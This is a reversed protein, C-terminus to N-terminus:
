RSGATGGSAPKPQEWRIRRILIKGDVEAFPMKQEVAARYAADHSEVEQLIRETSSRRGPGFIAQYLEARQRGKETLQEIAARKAALAVLDLQAMTKAINLQETMDPRHGERSADTFIKEIAAIRAKVGAEEVALMRQQTTLSALTETRIDSWPDLQKLQKRAEIRKDEVGKAEARLDAVKSQYYKHLEVFTEHIPLSYVRDYSALTGRVLEKVVEANPAMLTIQRGEGETVWTRKPDDLARRSPSEPPWYSQVRVHLSSDATLMKLVAPPLLGKPAKRALVALDLSNVRLWGGVDKPHLLGATSFRSMVQPARFRLKMVAVYRQEALEALRSGVTEASPLLVPMEEESQDFVLKRQPIATEPGTAPAPKADKAAAAPASGALGPNEAWIAEAFVIAVILCMAGFRTGM